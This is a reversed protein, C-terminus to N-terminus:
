RQHPNTLTQAIEVLTKAQWHAQGSQALVTERAAHWDGTRAQALAVAFTIRQDCGGGIERTMQMASSIDGSRVYARALACCVAYRRSPSPNKIGRWTQLAGAVDGANAQAEALKDLAHAVGSAKNIWHITRLAADFDDREIEVSAMTAYLHDRMDVHTISAVTEMADTLLGMEAQKEAILSLNSDRTLSCLEADEPQQGSADYEQDAEKARLLTQVASDTDGIKAQTQAISMLNMTAGITAKLSYQGDAAGTKALAADLTQRAGQEDGCKAQSEALLLLMETHREEPEQAILERAARFFHNGTEGDGHPVGSGIAVLAKFRTWWYAIARAAQLAREYNGDFAQRTALFLYTKDRNHSPAMTEAVQFATAFDGLTAYARAADGIAFDAQSAPEVKRAAALSQELMRRAADTNGARRYVGGALRFARAREYSNVLADARRVAEALTEDGGDADGGQFQVGAIDALVTAVSDAKPLSLAADKAQALTWAAGEADGAARQALWVDETLLPIPNDAVRASRAADRLLTHVPNAATSTEM